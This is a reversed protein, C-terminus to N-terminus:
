HEPNPPRSEETLDRFRPDNRIEDFWPDRLLTWMFAGRLVMRQLVAIAGEADGTSAFAISLFYAAQFGTTPFSAAIRALRARATTTDGNRFEASALAAEAEVRALRAQTLELTTIELQRRHTADRIMAVAFREDSSSRLESLSLEVRIEDGRKTRAPM